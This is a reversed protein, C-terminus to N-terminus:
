NAEDDERDWESAMHCKLTRLGQLQLHASLSSSSWGWGGETAAITFRRLTSFRYKTDLYPLLGLHQSSQPAGHLIVEHLNLLLAVLLACLPYELGAQL